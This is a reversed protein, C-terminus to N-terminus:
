GRLLKQLSAIVEPEPQPAGDPTWRIVQRKPALIGTASVARWRKGHADDATSNDPIGRGAFLHLCANRLLGAVAELDESGEVFLAEPDPRRLQGMGVVDAVFWTRGGHEGVAAGRLNTWLDLPPGTVGTKQKQVAEVQERSRLAEGGPLFFAAAGPLSFLDTALESIAALEYAPDHEKPLVKDEPLEIATRMRVFGRHRAAVEAAQPWSWTQQRARALAGPSATPGFFGSRWASVVTPEASTPRDPWPRDVVDVLLATGNGLELSFGEGSAVWAEEGAAAKQVATVDWSRLAKLLEEPSPVGNMLIAACQTFISSM